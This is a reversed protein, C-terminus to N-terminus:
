ASRSSAAESRVGLDALDVRSASPMTRRAHPVFRSWSPSSNWAGMRSHGVHRWATQGFQQFRTPEAHRRHTGNERGITSGGAGSGATMVVNAAVATLAAAAGTADSGGAPLVSRRRRRSAFTTGVTGATSLGNGAMTRVSGVAAVGVASGGGCGAEGSRFACPAVLAAATARSTWHGSRDTSHSSLGFAVAVSRGRGDRGSGGVGPDAASSVADAARGTRPATRDRGHPSGRRRERHDDDRHERDGPQRERCEAIQGVRTLGVSRRARRRRRPGTESGPSTVVGPSAEGARCRAAAAVRVAGGVVVVALAAAAVPRRCGATAARGAAAVRGQDSQCRLRRETRGRRRRATRGCCRGRRAGGGRRRCRIRRGRRGRDSARDSASASGQGSARDLASARAWRSFRGGDPRAAPVSVAIDSAGASARVITGSVPRASEGVKGGQELM